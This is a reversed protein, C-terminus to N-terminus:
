VFSRFSFDINQMIFWYQSSDDNKNQKVGQHSDKKQM